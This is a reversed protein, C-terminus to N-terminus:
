SSTKKKGTSAVLPRTLSTLRTEMDSIVKKFEAMLSKPVAKGRPLRIKLPNVFKGNQRIRYDLHPGTALGTSGVYGIIDGQSIKRGKRVRKPIRSLHGYYTEFGGSHRIKVMKGNQGKYGAFLVTGGGAASVPTGAPAAYDVGLHPRYIRLIPHFRKRSFHSSIHTFKLPSKLLTKRLSRGNDDYYDAYGDHEFRFAYHMQGNNLFEAALINGFGRFVEGSWLEEVMIKVTDGNRIDTLFDIDWAYIDSLELALRLYENHTGPMSLILNDRLKIYLSGVRKEYEVNVREASFGESTRAVKLFSDEDIGYQMNQIRNRDDVEFFYVSGVSLRSLNYSKKADRFIATLEANDLGYKKFIADMTESPQVVGAITSMRNNEAEVAPTEVEPEGTGINMLFIILVPVSVIGFIIRKMQDRM